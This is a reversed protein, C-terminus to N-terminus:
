KARRNGIAKKLADHFDASHNGSGKQSRLKEAVFDAAAKVPDKSQTVSRPLVIEGPSLMAPVTDNKANDGRIPAKGPVAGGKAHLMSTKMGPRFISIMHHMHDPVEGGSSMFDPNKQGEQYSPMTGAFPDGEVPAYSGSGSQVAGGSTAQPQFLASGLGSANGEKEKEGMGILGGSDIDEQSGAGSAPLAAPAFLSKLGGAIASGLGMAGGNLGQGGNFIYDGTMAPTPEPFTAMGGGAFNQTQDPIIEAAPHSPVVGGKALGFGGALGGLLGGALGKSTNANQGAVGANVNNMNSTGGVEANNYSAISNQDASNLGLAQNGQQGYLGALAGEAGLQKQMGMLAGQGAAQQQMGAANQAAVRAALAPSIGRQSAIMGTNSKIANENMQQAELKEPSPGNGQVQQQLVNALNGENNYADSVLGRSQALNGSFDQSQIPAGQAAFSNGSGTAGTLFSGM